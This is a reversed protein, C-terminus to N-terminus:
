RPQVRRETQGGRQDTPNKVAPMIGECIARIPDREGVESDAHAGESKETAPVVEATILTAGRGRTTRTGGRGRRGGRTAIKKVKKGDRPAQDGGSAGAVPANEEGVDESMGGAEISISDVTPQHTTGGVGMIGHRGGKPAGRTGRTAGRAGRTGRGRARTAKQKKQSEKLLQQERKREAEEMAIQTPRSTRGSRTTPPPPASPRPRHAELTNYVRQHTDVFFPIDQNMHLDFGFAFDQVEVTAGSRACMNDLAYKLITDMLHTHVEYFNNMLIILLIDVNDGPKNQGVRRLCERAWARIDVYNELLDSGDDQLDYDQGEEEPQEDRTSDESARPRSEDRSSPCSTGGHTPAPPSQSKPVDLPRNALLKLAGLVIQSPHNLKIDIWSGAPAKVSKNAYNRLLPITYSM